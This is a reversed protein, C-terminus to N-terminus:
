QEFPNLTCALGGDPLEEEEESDELGGEVFEQEEKKPSPECPGPSNEKQETFLQKELTKTASLM